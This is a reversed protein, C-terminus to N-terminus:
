SRGPKEERMGEPWLKLQEGMGKAMAAAYVREAAVIDEIAIGNSKFLTIEKEDARGQRRGAVIEAFEVVSEWRAPNEAFAQILDGSEERSQAVSDVAILAARNVTEFDLERNRPFNAGIANIHAGPSIWRGEVVPLSTNTATVIVDAGRVAAEASAAAHVPMKLRESMERAFQGRHDESRSFVQASELRRVAAIAELQTRAQLGAGIVAVRRADARALLRTALGSAAGTRMQGLYDAEVLALLDGSDASFLPVLFRLGQRSTTYMKMGMVGGTADAAAMYHLYSKGPVHLRQRSHLIATGDALRRFATEVAELAMPMTLLARVDDERLILTM